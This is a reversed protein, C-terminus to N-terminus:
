KVHGWWLGRAEQIRDCVRDLPEERLIGSDFTDLIGAGIIGNFSDCVSEALSIKDYGGELIFMCRGKCLEQSLQVLSQCLMHYTRSQFQLGALPDHWHADYGASVLVLDPQFHVAAPWIIQELAMQMAVHGSDGPLPLNITYGLGGGAGVQKIKGTYPWLGQQHTSIYMVSPDRYFIEETGNGHHVDFDVILVKNVPVLHQHQAHRAAMAIFNVVGFGMPRTPLVHHGPPRVCCFGAPCPGTSSAAASHELVADLVALVANATECCAGFSGPAIYTSEDVMTPGQLSSCIQELRQLYGAPHVLQLSSM